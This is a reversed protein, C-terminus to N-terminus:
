GSICSADITKDGLNVLEVRGGSVATIHLQENPRVSLEIKDGKELPIGNLTGSKRLVTVTFPTFDDKSHITCTADISWFLTNTFVQPDNPPFTFPYTLLQFSHETTSYVNTSFLGALCLAALGIKRIM